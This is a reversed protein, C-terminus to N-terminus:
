AKKEHVYRHYIEPDHSPLMVIDLNDEEIQQLLPFLSKYEQNNYHAFKSIWSGGLNERFNQRVYVSDAILFYRKGKLSNVLLGMQGVAHGPLPVLIMSGDQFLDVANPFPGYSTKGNFDILQLQEPDIGDFLEKIYFNKFLRLSSQRTFDWEKKSVIIRSTPFDHIGGVHDVHMHSLIIQVEAPNINMARLQEVANDKKSIQVPTAFRLIRYPFAHTVDLFRTSYGTDFLFYGQKPHKILFFLAPGWIKKKPFKKKLMHLSAKYFGANLVTLECQPTGKSFPLKM